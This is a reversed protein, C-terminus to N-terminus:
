VAVCRTDARASGTGTGCYDFQVGQDCRRLLLLLRLMLGLLLLLAFPGLAFLRFGPERLEAWVCGLLLLLVLVLLL